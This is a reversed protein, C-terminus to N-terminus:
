TEHARLHTYSVPQILPEYAEVEASVPTYSNSNGGGGFLSVACGFLVIILIILVAVWGGAIIASILAKTGAIIAKVAAITARVAAKTAQATAKATAKAAQAPYM